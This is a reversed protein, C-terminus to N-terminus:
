WNSSTRDKNARTAALRTSVPGTSDGQAPAVGSVAEARAPERRLGTLRGRPRPRGPHRRLPIYGTTWGAPMERPDIEHALDGDVVWDAWVVSGLSADAPDVGAIGAVLFYSKSLDLRPDLGLATISATSSATGMGTCIGLISGDAKTRLAQQGAPFPLVIDLKEREVWHQFEGPADGTDAGKEFFTVVM